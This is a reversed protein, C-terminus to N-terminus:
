FKRVYAVGFTNADPGHDYNSRTYDARVGNAGDFFYQGGVGWNWSDDQGGYAPTVGYGHFDTAGYGIRAFLDANPLVPLYGVGYGAYQDNLHVGRDNGLGGSAEGEIGLYKGFRAGVRGTIASLDPTGANDADLNTYGLNVYYSVNGLPATQAFAPAAVLVAAATSAAILFAKM